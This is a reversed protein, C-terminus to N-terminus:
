SIAAGLQELGFGESKKRQRRGGFGELFGLDPQTVRGVGEM